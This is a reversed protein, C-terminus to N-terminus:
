FKPCPLGPGFTKKVGYKTGQPFTMILSVEHAGGSGIGLRSITLDYSYGISINNYTAGVLGILSENNIVNQNIQKLPIGRYWLGVVFPSYTFYLGLDLQDSGGQHKYLLAPTFSIEKATGQERQRWQTEDVIPIKKGLQLTFRMPLRDTTGDLFQQSPRTLNHVAFGIWQSDDYLFIGSSLNFYQFGNSLAEATPNSFNQTITNYQDGFVLGAFEATRMVYSAQVGARLAWRSSLYVEQAYQLGIDMSTFKGATAVDRTFIIGLGGNIRSLYTDFSTSYTTFVTELNPWQKRYNLIVRPEYATGTLAPNIYLPAAYFQSYQPDQAQVAKPAFSLFIAIIHLSVIYLTKM